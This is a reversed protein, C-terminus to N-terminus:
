RSGGWGGFEGSPGTGWKLMLDVAYIARSSPYDGLGYPAPRSGALQFLERFAQFLDAQLSVSVSLSMAGPCLSLSLALALALALSSLSFCPVLVCPCLSLSMAGPCLSLSLSLSPSLSLSLSMAGPCLSLSLSLSMAAPCVSLCVSESVEVESWPHQPYQQEFM